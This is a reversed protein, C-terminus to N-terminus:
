QSEAVLGIFFLTSDGFTRTAEVEFSAPLPPPGSRKSREAVIVGDASLHGDLRVLLADWDTDPWAYPPDLFILDFEGEPKYKLASSVVVQGPLGCTKVNSRAIRAADRSQDVLIAESAGRSLAEIALAGSGTFLDLVRADQVVGWSELKSFLSERMKSSTPRTGATPVALRRGKAKGAVVRM